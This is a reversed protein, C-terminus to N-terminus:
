AELRNNKRPIRYEDFFNLGKIYHQLKIYAKITQNERYKTSTVRSSITVDKVVKQSHNITYHTYKQLVSM